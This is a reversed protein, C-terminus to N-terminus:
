SSTSANILDNFELYIHKKFNHEELSVNGSDSEILEANNVLFYKHYLYDKGDSSVPDDWTLDLHLWKGDIYVANWVHGNSRYSIDDSTTEIKYNKIGMKSLMIAMTDTYGNCTAYHNFLVGWAISSDYNSTGTENKTEDYKTTNIILDHLIKINEYDSNEKKVYTNLIKDIETNIENIQKETYLYKIKLNIEGSDYYTTNLSTFSNFPHVYSNIHSLTLDDTTIKKIDNLCDEYETPCYFTFKEWGNNITTFMINLIDNYSYPIFNDTVQVYLFGEKKAYENPTEYIIKHNNGIQNAIYSSIKDSKITTTGILFLCIILIIFKKLIIM